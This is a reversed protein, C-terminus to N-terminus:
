QKPQKKIIILYDKIVEITINIRKKYFNKFDDTIKM